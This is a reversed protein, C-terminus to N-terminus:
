AAALTRAMTNLGDLGGLLRSVIVVVQIEKLGLADLVHAPLDSNHADGIAHQHLIRDALLVLHSYVAHQGQYHEDHHHRAATIVEEPMDWKELLWAGLESHEIGLVERELEIIPREPHEDIVNSLRCFEQKFLHGLILFGFNHLLGALYSLGAPPRLDGPLERGLAQVLAASFIAHRWFANLSLPGITPIKFPRAATIGLALNIVMEFGLVRSIAAQISEVKGQYAFLPSRAYRIVQAALSPDLEVLRVLKDVGADHEARLRIFETALQPMAPLETIQQVREKITSPESSIELKSHDPDIRKRVTRLTAVNNALWAGSLLLFFQKGSIEVLTAADGAPFYIKANEVLADDVITRIGYIEGLPPISQPDCDGFVLKVQAESAMGLKRYMLKSLADSDVEHTAPVVVLVYGLEDKLLTSKAISSPPISAQKAAGLLSVHSPLDHLDYVIHRNDLYLKIKAAIAM